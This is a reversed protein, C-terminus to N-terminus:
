VIVFTDGSAPATTLMSVTFTQTGHNFATIDTAQGRLAATITDAAFIIVRGKFQDAVASAPSLSSAVVSTASSGSGCTGLIETGAARKFRDVAGSDGGTAALMDAKINGAGTLAAPLRSQVDEIKGDAAAIDAALTADPTGILGALADTAAIILSQDAPDDPLNDTREKIAATETKITDFNAAVTAIDILLDNWEAGSADSFLIVLNDGNTEAQSLVVKVNKGGAPSVTPLAALNAFSGGDISIKVDGEALTPNAQFAGTPTRPDLAVNLIAGGAANKVIPNYSTM